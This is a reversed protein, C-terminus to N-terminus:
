IEFNENEISKRLIEEAEEDSPIHKEISKGSVFDEICNVLSQSLDFKTLQQIIEAKQVLSTCGEFFWGESLPYPEIMWSSDKSVYSESDNRRSYRSLKNYTREAQGAAIKRLIYAFRTIQTNRATEGDLLGAHRDPPANKEWRLMLALYLYEVTNKLGM